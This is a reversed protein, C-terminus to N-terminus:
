PQCTSIHYLVQGHHHRDIRTPDTDKYRHTTNALRIPGKTLYICKQRQSSVKQFIVLHEHPDFPNNAQTSLALASSVFFSRIYSFCSLFLSPSASTSAALAALCFLRNVHIGRDLPQTPLSHSRQSGSSMAPGGVSGPWLHCRLATRRQSARKHSSTILFLRGSNV